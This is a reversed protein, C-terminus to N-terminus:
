KLVVGLKYRGEAAHIAAYRGLLEAVQKRLFARQM